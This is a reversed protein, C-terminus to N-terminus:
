VFNLAVRVFNKYQFEIRAFCLYKSGNRFKNAFWESDNLIMGFWHLFRKTDRKISFPCFDIGSLEM